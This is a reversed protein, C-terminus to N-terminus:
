EGAYRGPGPNSEVDGSLMLHFYIVSEAVSLVMEDLTHKIFFIVLKKLQNSLTSLSHEIMHFVALAHIFYFCVKFM